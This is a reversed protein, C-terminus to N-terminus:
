HSDVIRTMALNPTALDFCDLIFGTMKYICTAYTDVVWLDM